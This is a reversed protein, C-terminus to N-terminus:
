GGKRKLKIKIKRGKKESSSVEPLPMRLTVKKRSIHFNYLDLLAISVPQNNIGILFFLGLLAGGIFSGVLAIMPGLHGLILKILLFTFTSAIAAEIVNRTEFLGWLSKGATEVNRPIPEDM